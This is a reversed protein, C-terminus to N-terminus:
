LFALIMNKIAPKICKLINTKAGNYKIFFSCFLITTNSIGIRKKIEKKSPNSFIKNVSDLVTELV